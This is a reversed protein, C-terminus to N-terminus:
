ETIEQEITEFVFDPVIYGDSQLEKLGDYLKQLTDYRFTEGDCPGGIPVLAAANLAALQAERAQLFQEVSVTSIDPMEPINGVHRAGAVHVVFSASDEYAYIDCEWNNSSWRCYSM